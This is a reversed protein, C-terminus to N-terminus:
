GGVFGQELETWSVDPELDRKSGLWEHGPLDIRRNMEPWRVIRVVVGLWMFWELPSWLEVFGGRRNGFEQVVHYSAREDCESSECDVDDTTDMHESTCEKEPRPEGSPMADDKVMPSAPRHANADGWPAAYTGEGGM